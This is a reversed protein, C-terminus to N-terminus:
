PRETAPETQGKVYEFVQLRGNYSDCIWIRDNGDIYIGGPLWFEGPGIGEEGFFLLLSGSRDFIQVNEFRSDV